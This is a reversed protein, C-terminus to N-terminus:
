VRPLRAINKTSRNSSKTPPGCNRTPPKRNRGRPGCGRKRRWCNRPSGSCWRATPARRPRCVAQWRRISQKSRTRCWFSAAPKRSPRSGLRTDGVGDPHSCVRRRAAPGFLSLLLRDARTPGAARRVRSRFRRSRNDPPASQSSGRLRSRGQAARDRPGPHSSPTSFEQLARIGGASAGIGVIRPKAVGRNEHGHGDRDATGDADAVM